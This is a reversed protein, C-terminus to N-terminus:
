AAARRQTAENAASGSIVFEAVMDRAQREGIALSRCASNAQEAMAANQQTLQDIESMAMNVERLTSTQNLAQGAIDAIGGDIMAIQDNIRNFATTTAEM